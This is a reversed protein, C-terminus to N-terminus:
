KTYEDVAKAWKTNLDKMIDAFSEKTNGIGADVIRRKQDETSGVGVESANNVDSFLSEKGAPAPTEEILVVGADALGQLAIPMDAGKVASLGGNVEAYDSKDVMWDIFQRAAKKKADSSNINIGYNYDGGIALYTKGDVQNPFAQFTVNEANAENAVQLQPIAWSGLLLTGIKGNAFDVKSQEWDTTTPDNEILGRSALEYLTEYITWMTSGETFAKTDNAMEFTFDPNGSVGARIFDWNSLVWGAAYNTYFPTVGDLKKEAEMLKIFDETTTPFEKYGADNMVKKNVLLGTANVQSPLGYQTGEYQRDALLMYKEELEKSKGLPEFFTGYDQPKIDAPIMLVDGYDKSNMRTKMQGGYDTVTQIKVTVDPYEENFKKIYKDWTGDAQWDTKHNIFTITTKGDADEDKKGCGALLLASAAVVGLTGLVTKLKM